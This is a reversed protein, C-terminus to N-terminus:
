RLSLIKKDELSVERVDFYRYMRAPKCIQGIRYILTMYLIYSVIVCSPFLFVTFSFSHICLLFSLFNYLSLVHYLSLTLPNFLSEIDAKNEGYSRERERQSDHICWSVSMYDSLGPYVSILVSLGIYLLILQLSSLIVMAFLSLGPHVTIFCFRRSLCSFLFRLLIHIMMIIWSLGPSAQIYWSM